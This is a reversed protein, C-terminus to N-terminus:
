SREADFTRRERVCQDIKVLYDRVWAAWGDPWEAIPSIKTAAYLEVAMSLHPDSLYAVPCRKWDEGM